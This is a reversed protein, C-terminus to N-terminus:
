QMLLCFLTLIKQVWPLDYSVAYVYALVQLMSEVKKYTIQSVLDQIAHHYSTM